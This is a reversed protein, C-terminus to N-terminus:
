HAQFVLNLNPLCYVVVVLDICHHLHFCFTLVSLFRNCCTVSSQCHHWPVIFGPWKTEVCCLLSMHFVLCLLASTFDAGTYKTIEIEKFWDCLVQPHMTQSNLDCSGERIYRKHDIDNAVYRLPQVWSKLTISPSVEEYRLPSSVDFSTVGESAHQLCCVISVTLGASM